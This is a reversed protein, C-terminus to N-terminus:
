APTGASLLPDLGGASDLAYLDDCGGIHTPGIFIQPVTSGGHAREIMTQRLERNGSVDIENFAAGKRGLLEKAAICYPCYPTTYIDIPATPKDTM